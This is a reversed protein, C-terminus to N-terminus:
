KLVHFADSKAQIPYLWTFRSYVDVFSVYYKNGSFSVTPSPGWVDSFLLESPRYAVFTSSNFPLQHSKAQSCAPCMALTKNASIPLQFKSLVQRVIRFNPHGLRLYWNAASTREGLLAHSPTTPCSRSFLPYLGQRLPGHHLIRGTTLDKIFFFNAYFEFFVSNDKAFQSVSLLNKCANPVYLVHKLSFSHNPTSLSANGIHSIPLGQGNGITIQDTGSYSKSSMNLNSFDPTLHHSAGIDPYWNDDQIASPLSYFAQAIAPPDAQYSHDFRHYYSIAAHGLKNCVQCVVHPTGLSFPNSSSKSSGRGCGRTGRGNQNSSSGRGYSGRGGRGHNITNRTAMNAISFALEATSQQQELRQEHALLHGYLEDLSLPDVRTTVSTVFSDYETGLGALIYSSMETNSLAQGVTALTDGLSHMRQFYDTM